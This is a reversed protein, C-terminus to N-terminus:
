GESGERLVFPGAVDALEGVDELAGYDESCVERLDRGLV